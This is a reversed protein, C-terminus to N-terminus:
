SFIEPFAVDFSVMKQSGYGSNFGYSILISYNDIDKTDVSINLRIMAQSEEPSTIEANDYELGIKKTTRLHKSIDFFAYNEWNFMKEFVKQDVNSLLGKEEISKYSREFAPTPL